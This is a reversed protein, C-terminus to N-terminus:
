DDFFDDMRVDDYNDPMTDDNDQDLVRKYQALTPIVGEMETLNVPYTNYLKQTTMIDKIAKMICNVDESLLASLKRHVSFFGLLVILGAIFVVTASVTLESVDMGSTYYYIIEWDSDDVKVRINAAKKTDIISGSVGLVLMDQKLEIYEDKAAATRINKSIFDYNLSVLIVGVVENNQKIARTIALHRDPGTDGQISPLRSKSFTERVMEIDAFGMKPVIQDDTPSVGPVFLRIKLVEPFYKELKTATASLQVPNANSIIALLEPDSVIKDITKNLLDIQASLTVSVAKAIATASEEKSHMVAINSMWYICAGSILFMLMTIGALWSFLKIM